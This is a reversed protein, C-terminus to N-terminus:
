LWNPKPRIMPKIKSNSLSHFTNTAVEKLEVKSRFQLLLKNKYTYYCLRQGLKKTQLVTAEITYRKKHKPM